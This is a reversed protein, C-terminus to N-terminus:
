QNVPLSGTKGIYPTLMRRGLMLTRSVQLGGDCATEPHDMTPESHCDGIVCHVTWM